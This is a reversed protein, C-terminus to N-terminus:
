KVEKSGMLPFILTLLQLVVIATIYPSLGLMVISLNRLAGGVFLNYLALPGGFNQTQTSAFFNRLKTVDIGPIPINALLRFIAFVGLIFLVKNRLEKDKFLIRIKQFNM